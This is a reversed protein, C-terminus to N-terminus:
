FILKEVGIFFIPLSAFKHSKNFHINMSLLWRIKKVLPRYIYLVYFEKSTDCFFYFGTKM